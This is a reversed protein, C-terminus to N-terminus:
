AAQRKMHPGPICWLSGASTTNPLRRALEAARAPSVYRPSPPYLVFGVADAGAAVVADLDEERTIGCIKIRTRHLPPSIPNM